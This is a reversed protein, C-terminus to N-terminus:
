CSCPYTLADIIVAGRVQPDVFATSNAQETSMRRRRDVHKSGVISSKCFDRVLDHMVGKLDQDDAVLGSQVLREWVGFSCHGQMDVWIFWAIDLLAEQEENDENDANGLNDWSLKFASFLARPEDILGGPVNSFVDNQMNEMGNRFQKRRGPVRNYKGVVEVALPLGACRRVVEHAM